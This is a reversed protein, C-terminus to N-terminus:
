AHYAGAPKATLSRPPTYADAAANAEAQCYDFGYMGWLSDVENGDADTLTYGYVEGNAWESYTELDQRAMEYRRAYDPFNDAYEDTFIIFGDIEGPYDGDSEITMDKRWELAYYTSNGHERYEIPVMKGARLKAQYEPKIKGNDTQYEDADEDTTLKCNFTVIEYSGWTAPSDAMDDYEIRVTLGNREYTEIAGNM